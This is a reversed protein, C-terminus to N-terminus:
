RELQDVARSQAPTELAAGVVDSRLSGSQPQARPATTGGQTGEEQTHQAQIVGLIQPQLAPVLPIGTLMSLSLKKEFSLSAKLEPLRALIRTKLESLHEPFLTQYTEADEPSIAGDALRGEIEQASEAAAAYRAFRRMEIHSPQWNDPGLPMTEYGPRKPLKSALFAHKKAVFTEAMDALQPNAIALPRLAEATKKRAAMTMQPQGTPGTEVSSHIEDAVRKYEAVLASKTPAKKTLAPRAEGYSVSALTKTSLPIAARAVGRAAPKAAALFRDLSASSKLSAESVAGALRKAIPAILDGAVMTAMGGLVHGGPILAMAAGMAGKNVIKGLLTEPPAKGLAAGADRLQTIRAELDDLNGIMRPLDTLAKARSGQMEGAELAKAFSSAEEVTVELAEKASKARAKGLVNSSYRQAVKGTLAVKEAGDEVAALKGLVEEAMGRDEVALRALTEDANAAGKQLASRQIRIPRLARAPNEALGVPDLLDSRFQDHSKKLGEAKGIVDWNFDVVEQRHAALDDVVKKSAAEIGEKTALEAPVEAVARSKKLAESAKGITKRAAKAGSIAVDAGGGIVGGLAAGKVASTLVSGIVEADIPKGAAVADQVGAGAGALGGEVVGAAAAGVLGGGLRASAAGGLRAAAGAPTARALTGVAGTGGSLLAPAVAGVVTGIGGPVPHAEQGEKLYEYADPNVARLGAGVLGFSATDIASTLGAGIGGVIGGHERELRAGRERGRFGATGEAVRGQEEYAPLDAVTTESTLGTEPDVIAVKTAGAVPEYLGSAIAASLEADPVDWAKGTAKEVLKPV